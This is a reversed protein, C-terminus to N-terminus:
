MKVNDVVVFNFILFDVDERVTLADKCQIILMVRHGWYASQNCISLKIRTTKIM